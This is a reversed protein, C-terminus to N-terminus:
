SSARSLVGTLCGTNGAAKSLEATPTTLCEVGLKEYFARASGSEAPMLIRRPGLTVFNVGRYDEPRDAFEPFEVRM